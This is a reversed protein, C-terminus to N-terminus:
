SPVTVIDIAIFECSRDVSAKLEAAVKVSTCVRWAAISAAKALVELATM